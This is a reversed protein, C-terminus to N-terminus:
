DYCAPWRQVDVYDWELMWEHPHYTNIELWKCWATETDIGDKKMKQIATIANPHACALMLEHQRHTQARMYLRRVQTIYVNADRGLLKFTAITHAGKREYTANQEKLITAWDANPDAFLAIDVDSIRIDDDSRSPYGSALVGLRLAPIQICHAYVEEVTPLKM